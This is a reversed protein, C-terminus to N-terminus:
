AAVGSRHSVSQYVQHTQQAVREASFEVSRKKGRAILQERLGSDEAVRRMCEAMDDVSYPDFLLGADGAVEPMSARNSTLVATGCAMAELIPIGFGEYLSPYVLAIARAYMQKLQGDALIGLHSVRTHIGLERLMRQEPDSFEPGGVCRLEVQPDTKALEAFAELTRRFNKYFLRQGVYLFYRQEPDSQVSQPESEFQCSLHIVKTREDPIGYIERLDNRTAESICIIADARELSERKLKRQKGAPDMQEPFREHILDYVTLVTPVALRRQFNRLSSYYYTPHILDPTEGSILDYFRKAIARKQLPKIAWWAQPGTEIHVALNPHQPLLDPRNSALLTPHVSSPLHSILSNFYRVVGGYQQIRYIVGDYLVHM